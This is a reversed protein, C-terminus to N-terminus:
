SRARPAAAPAAAPAAPVAALPLDCPDFRWANQGDKNWKNPLLVMWSLSEKEERDKDEPWKLLVAGAQLPKKCRSSAKDSFGDAVKVVEASCWMLVPEGDTQSYYKWNVELWRGVLSSNLPPPHKPQQRQVADTELADDRRQREADAARRVEDVSFLSTAALEKADCAATGLQKLTRSKMQPAPAETPIRNLRAQAKEHVLIEELLEQLHKISGINADKSSSWQTAFQTWGLGLVRMEIQERLFTKQPGENQGGSSARAKIQALERVM